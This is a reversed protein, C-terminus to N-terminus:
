LTIQSLQSARHAECALDASRSHRSSIREPLDDACVFCLGTELVWGCLEARGEGISVFASRAQTSLM